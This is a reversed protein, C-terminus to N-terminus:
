YVHGRVKEEQDEGVGAHRDVPLKDILHAPM